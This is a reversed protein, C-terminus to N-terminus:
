RRPAATVPAKAPAKAPAKRDPVAVKKPSYILQVNSVIAVPRGAALFTDTREPSIVSLKEGLISVKEEVAPIVVTVSEVGTPAVAKLGGPGAGGTIREVIDSAVRFENQIVARALLTNDATLVGITSTYKRYAKGAKVLEESYTHRNHLDFTLTVDGTHPPLDIVIGDAPDRGAVVDCFQQRSSAGVGLPSPCQFSAPETVPPAPKAPARRLTKRQQAFVASTLLLCVAGAALARWARSM